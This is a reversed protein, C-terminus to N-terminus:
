KFKGIDAAIKQMVILRNREQIMSQGFKQIGTIIHRQLKFISEATCDPCELHVDSDDLRKLGECQYYSFSKGSELHQRAWGTKAQHVANHLSMATIFGHYEHIRYKFTFGHKNQIRM